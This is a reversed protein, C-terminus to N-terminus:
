GEASIIAALSVETPSKWHVSIKKMIVAKSGAGLNVDNGALVIVDMESSLMDIYDSNSYYEPEDVILHTLEYTTILKKLGELTYDKFLDFRVVDSVIGCYSWAELVLEVFGRDKDIEGPYYLTQLTLSDEFRGDGLSHWCLSDYNYAEAQDLLLPRTIGSFGDEGAYVSLSKYLNLHLADSKTVGSNTVRLSLTVEGVEYDEDSPYYTTNM